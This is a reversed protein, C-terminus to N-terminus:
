VVTCIKKIWKKVNAKKQKLKKKSTHHILKYKGNRTKGNIHTFDLFDFSEKTGKYREMPLIKIKNEEVELGIKAM